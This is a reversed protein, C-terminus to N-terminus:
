ARLSKIASQDMATSRNFNTSIRGKTNKKKQNGPEKPPTPPNHDKITANGLGQM